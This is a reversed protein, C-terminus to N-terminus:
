QRKVEINTPIATLMENYSNDLERRDVIETDYNTLCRHSLVQRVASRTTLESDSVPTAPRCMEALLNRTALEGGGNVTLLERLQENLGFMPLPAKTSRPPFSIVPIEIPGKHRKVDFKPHFKIASLLPDSNNRKM